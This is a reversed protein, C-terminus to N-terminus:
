TFPTRKERERVGHPGVRAARVGERPAPPTPKGPERRFGPPATLTPGGSTAGESASSDGRVLLPAAAAAPCCRWSLSESWNSGRSASPSDKGPAVVAALCSCEESSFEELCPFASVSAPLGPSSAEGLAPQSCSVPWLALPTGPDGVRSCGVPPSPSAMSLAGRTHAPDPERSGWSAHLRGGSSADEGGPSGAASPWPFQEPEACASPLAPGRPRCPRGPSRAWGAVTSVKSM